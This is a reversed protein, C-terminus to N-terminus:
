NHIEAFKEILRAMLNWQADTGGSLNHVAIDLYCITLYILFMAAIITVMARFFKNKNLTYRKSM